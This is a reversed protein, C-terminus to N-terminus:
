RKKVPRRKRRKADFDREFEHILRINLRLLTDVAARISKQKDRREIRPQPSCCSIDRAPEPPPPPLRAPDPGEQQRRALVKEMEKRLQALEHQPINMCTM